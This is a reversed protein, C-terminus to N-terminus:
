RSDYRDDGEITRLLRSAPRPVARLKQEDPVLTIGLVAHDINPPQGEVVPQFEFCHYWTVFKLWMVIRGLGYGVCRRRGQGFPVFKYSEPKNFSMEPHLCTNLLEREEELFREPRFEEAKVWHAPDMQPSYFNFFVQTGKPVNYGGLTIDEAAEHPLGQPAFHRWRFIEDLIATAYELKPVDELTPLRNPGVVDDLCKHLKAQVDPYNALVYLTWEMTTASTDIGGAIMDWVSARVDVDSLTEGNNRKAEKQHEIIHDVFDYDAESKADHTKDHAKIETSIWDVMKNAVVKYNDEEPNPLYKFFPMFDAPSGQAMHEFIVAIWGQVTMYEASQEEGFRLSLCKRMIVNLSERRCLQRVDWDSAKGQDVLNKLHYLSSEVEEMIVPAAEEGKQKNTVFKQVVTRIMRWRPGNNMAVGQFETLVKFSNLTPRNATEDQKDKLAEYFLEPSNLVVGKNSGFYLTYIPGYKEKLRYFDKHIGPQELPPSLQYFTGILPMPIPGPPM